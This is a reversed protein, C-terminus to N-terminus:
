SGSLLDDHSSDITAHRSKLCSASDIMIHMHFIEKEEEEVVRVHGTVGRV